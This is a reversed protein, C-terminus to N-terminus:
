RVVIFRHSSQLAEHTTAGATVPPASATVVVSGSVKGPKLTVVLRVTQTRRDQRVVAKAISPSRGTVSVTALQGASTRLGSIGMVTVAQGSRISRVKPWSGTLTQPVTALDGDLDALALSVAQPDTPTVPTPAPAPAPPDAAGTRGSVRASRGGGLQNVARVTITYETGPALDPLVATTQETFVVPGGSRRVQYGLVPSGGDDRPARWDVTMSTSTAGTVALDRPASPVSPAPVPDMATRADVTAPESEGMVNIARVEVRYMTGPELGDIFVEPEEVVVGGAEEGVQSVGVPAGAGAHIRVLRQIPLDDYSNVFGGVLLRSQRDLEGTFVSGVFGAGSDFSTDRQGDPLIRLIGDAPEGGYAGFNGLVILRGDGQRIVDNVQKDPGGGGPRFGADVQGEATLRVLNAWRSEGDFSPFGGGLLLAGDPLQLLPRVFQSFSSWGIGSGIRSQFDQDLEGQANVRLLGPVREGDWELPGDKGNPIGGLVISGDAQVLAWELLGRAELSLGSSFSEDLTGDPNLRAVGIARQGDYSWFNGVALIRGDELVLVQKVSDNFGSGQQFTEDVSGDPNLRVIGHAPVDNFSSMFGGAIIKGDPQLALSIVSGGDTGWGTAFSTDRSGDPNLRVIGGAFRPGWTDFFGGVLIRDDPQVAISAVGDAGTNGSDTPGKGIAFSFDRTGPQAGSTVRYWTARYGLVESGGDDDPEQWALSLTTRGSSLARLETPAGPAVPPLVPDMDTMATIAVPESLGLSNRAQVVFTYETGPELRKMIVFTAPVPVEALLEDESRIEYTLIRSGGDQAPAEWNLAITVTSTSSVTLDQVPTPPGPAPVPAMATYGSASVPRSRGFANLAAVTVTVETGAALGTLRARPGTAVMSAGAGWEVLYGTLDGDGPDAPAEWEVTMTSRTAESIRLNRPADPVQTVSSSAQTASNVAAPDSLGADNKARVTFRYSTAPRLGTVLLSSDTVAAEGGSWGVLYGVLRSGGDDSPPTWDLAVTTTTAGTAVLRAPAGPAQPEAETVASALAAHSLGRDTRARVAFAYTTSPSLGSVVISTGATDVQGDGWTVEYGTIEIGPDEAPPDWTIRVSTASAAEAVANRPAGSVEVARVVAGGMAASPSPAAQILAVGM